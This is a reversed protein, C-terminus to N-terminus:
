IVLGSQCYCSRLMIFVWRVYVRNCENTTCNKRDTPLFIDQQGGNGLMKADIDKKM